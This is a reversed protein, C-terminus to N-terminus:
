RTTTPRACRRCCRCSPWRWRRRRLAGGRLRLQGGHRLLEVRGGRVALGPCWSSCASADRRVRRVGEPPLPRARLARSRRCRRAAALPLAGPASSARRPVGRGPVRAVALLARTTASAWCWSSTACRSAPVVARPRRDGRRPAVHPALADVIRRAEARADDVLGATLLTRGCCLPRSASADGRARDRGRYGAARLVSRADRPTRRSSLLQHVHRRVARRGADPTTARPADRLFPTAGGARCRASRASASCASASRPSRGASRERLNLSRRCARPWRRGARCTRSSRARAAHARAHAQWHTCRGRDEHAGHRRRDPVRAPLGQLQRVPRAGRAGRRSALDPRSSAPCRSACRTRAAARRPAERRAHRPYSPCMTGADFKRCHGNNNCM